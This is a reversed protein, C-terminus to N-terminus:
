PQEEQLAKQYEPDTQGLLFHTIGAKRPSEENAKFLLAQYSQPLRAMVSSTIGTAMQFAKDAQLPLNSDVVANGAAKAIKDISRSPLLGAAFDVAPAGVTTAAKTVPMAASAAKVGQGLLQGGGELSAGIAMNKATDLVKGPIGKAEVPKDYVYQNIFDQAGKGLAYGAGGGLMAGGPGGVLGLGGGLIGGLAPLHDTISQGLGSPTVETAAAVTEQIPPAEVVPKAAPPEVITNRWSKAPADKITDKWGM